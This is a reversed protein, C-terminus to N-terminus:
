EHLVLIPLENAVRAYLGKEKHLLESCININRGLLVILDFEKQIAELQEESFAEAIPIKRTEIQRDELTEFFLSMSETQTECGVEMVTIGAEKAIQQRQLFKLNEQPLSVGYDIPFLMRHPVRYRSNEAVALINCKVKTIVEYTHNGIITNPSHLKNAAGMVILDINKEIVFKRSAGVLDNESYLVSFKHEKNASLEQLELVRQQLQSLALDRTHNGTIEPPHQPHFLKINLLYFHAPVDALFQVAYTGANKAVQSLDTLILVNM